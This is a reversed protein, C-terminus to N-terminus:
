LGLFVLKKIEQYIKDSEDQGDLFYDIKSKALTELYFPYAVEDLMMKEKKKKQADYHKFKHKRRELSTKKDLLIHLHLYPKIDGLIEERLAFGTIVLNGNKSMEKVEKQFGKIDLSDLSDYNNKVSGDSLKVKPLNGRLYFDDLDLYQFGLESALQKGHTSKGAGSFGSIAIIM